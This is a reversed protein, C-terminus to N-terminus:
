DNINIYCTQKAFTGLVPEMLIDQLKILLRYDKIMM